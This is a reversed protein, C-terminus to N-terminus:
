QPREPDERLWAEMTRCLDAYTLQDPNLRFKKVAGPLQRLFRRYQGGIFDCGPLSAQHRSFSDLWDRVQRIAAQPSAKHIEIDFGSIDSLSARYRFARRDLILAAKRNQEKSGFRKAGLFLGLEFPMNHRPLRTGPDLKM